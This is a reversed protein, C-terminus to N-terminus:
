NDLDEKGTFFFLDSEPYGLFIIHKYMELFVPNM